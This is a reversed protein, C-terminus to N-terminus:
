LITEEALHSTYDAMKGKFLKKPGSARRACSCVRHQEATTASARRLSRPTRISETARLDEEITM